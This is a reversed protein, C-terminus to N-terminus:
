LSLSKGAKYDFTGDRHFVGWINSPLFNIIPAYVFGTSLNDIDIPSCTFVVDTCSYDKFSLLVLIQAHM